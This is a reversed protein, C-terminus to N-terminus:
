FSLLNQLEIDDGDQCCLDYATQREDETEGNCEIRKDAGHKLLLKVMDKDQNCAAIHLPTFGDCVDKKNVDGNCKSILMELLVGNSAQVVCSFFSEKMTSEDNEDSMESKNIDINNSKIFIEIEFLEKESFDQRLDDFKKFINRYPNDDNEDDSDDTEMVMRSMTNGFSLGGGGSNSHTQTQAASQDEHTSDDETSSMDTMSGDMTYNSVDIQYKQLYKLVTSIYHLKSSNESMNQKSFNM